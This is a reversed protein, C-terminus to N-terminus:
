TEDMISKCAKSIFVSYAMIPCAPTLMGLPTVPRNKYIYKHRVYLLTILKLKTHVSGAQGCHM